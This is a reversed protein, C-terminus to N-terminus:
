SEILGECLPNKRSIGMYRAKTSEILELSQPTLIKLGSVPEIECVVEVPVTYDVQKGDSTPIAVDFISNEKAWPKTM